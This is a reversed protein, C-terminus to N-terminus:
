SESVNGNLVQLFERKTINGNGDSDLERFENRIAELDMTWNQDLAIQSRVQFEVFEPWSISGNGDKDTAPFTYILHFKGKM